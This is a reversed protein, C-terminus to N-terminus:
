QFLSLRLLRSMPLEVTAADAFPLLAPGFRMFGKIMVASARNM